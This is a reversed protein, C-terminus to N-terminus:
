FKPWYFHKQLIVVIKEMGFHREVQSYHTDWIMKAHESTPVCLHGLHFLLKNHIHFDTAIVGTGLIHYTTSIDPDQQSLQPWEFSDHGCSHLVTM